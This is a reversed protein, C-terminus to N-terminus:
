ATEFGRYNEAAVEDCIRKYENAGGIYGLVSHAKGGVNSGMWWSKTAPILTMNAVEDVHDAWEVEAAPEPEIRTLGQRTLHRICDTVWEVQMGGCTPYNCFATTPATPGTVMFLNPFGASQIGLYSLPRQAWKANLSAGDRGRIDIRSYSGTVADFGTALVIYDFKHEGSATRIGQETFAQMPDENVDILTVNDQNYVEFYGNELPVRRSGYPYDPMLKEATAPDDVRARIKERVFEAVPANAAESALIDHYNGVWFSLSGDAWLEELYARRESDSVDLASQPNLHYEFGSFTEHTLAHTADAQDRRTQWDTEDLAPNRIPIAYNPTRQFVTLSAVEGAISQIVQIGTAGTGIVGVRKGRFDVGGHPWRCTHLFKPRAMDQGPLDPVLPETLVGIASIFFRADLIEGADTEIRWRDRDEDYHASVVRTDFQIHDRLDFRDAVYNLYALAESQPPFRQSWQWEELLERSFFYQYSSSPSDCRAGPYRNWYWTGGVDGGAEFSQVSLGLERMRYLLHLGAFGAGVIVVDVTRADAGSNASSM